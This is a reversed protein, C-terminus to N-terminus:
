EVRKKDAGGWVSEVKREKQLIRKEPQTVGAPIESEPPLMAQSPWSPGKTNVDLSQLM